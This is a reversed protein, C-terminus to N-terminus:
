LAGVALGSVTISPHTTWPRQIREPAFTPEFPYTRVVGRCNSYSTDRSHLRATLGALEAWRCDVDVSGPVSKFAAGAALGLLQRSFHDAHRSQRRLHVRVVPHLTNRELASLSVVVQGGLPDFGAIKPNRAQPDSDLLDHQETHSLDLEKLSRDRGLKRSFSSAMATGVDNQAFGPPLQGCTSVTNLYRGQLHQPPRPMHRPLIGAERGQCHLRLRAVTPLWRATLCLGYFCNTGDM